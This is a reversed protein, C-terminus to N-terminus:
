ARMAPVIRWLPFWEGSASIKKLPNGRHNAEDLLLIEPDYYLARAIGVRQRQGGSLRVGREGVVTEFGHPLETTIFDYLNAIRAARELAERDIEADPLGFAINRAITDDCLYIHRPVYGLNRQWHRLNDATIATGDVEIQGRQPTLLGLIIDVLTTKGSGTAGVIAIATHRDITLNINKLM